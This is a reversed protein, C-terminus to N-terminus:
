LKYISVKDTFRTDSTDEDVKAYNYGVSHRHISSVYRIQGGNEIWRIVHEPWPNAFNLM